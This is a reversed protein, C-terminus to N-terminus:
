AYQVSWRLQVNIDQPLLHCLILLQWAIERVFSARPSVYACSMLGAVGACAFWCSANGEFAERAREGRRYISTAVGNVKMTGGIALKNM